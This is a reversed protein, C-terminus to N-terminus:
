ADVRIAGHAAIYESIADQLYSAVTVASVDESSICVYDSLYMAAPTHIDAENQTPLIDVLIKKMVLAPAENEIFSFGDATLHDTDFRLERQVAENILDLITRTNGSVVEEEYPVAILSPTIVLAEKNNYVGIHMESVDSPITVGNGQQISNVYIPLDLGQLYRTHGEMGCTKSADKLEFYSTLVGVCENALAIEEDSAGNAYNLIAEVIKNMRGLREKAEDNPVWHICPDELMMEDPYCLYRHNLGCYCVTDDDVPENSGMYMNDCTGCCMTVRQCKEM